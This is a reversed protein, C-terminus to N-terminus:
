AKKQRFVKGIENDGDRSDKEDKLDWGALGDEVVVNWYSGVRGVM